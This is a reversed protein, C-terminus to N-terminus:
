LRVSELRAAAWRHADLHRALRTLHAPFIRTYLRHRPGHPRHPIRDDPYGILEAVARSLWQPQTVSRTQNVSYSTHSMEAETLESKIRAITKANLISPFVAYGEVEFNRIQQPRSMGAFDTRDVNMFPIEEEPSIAPRPAPDM